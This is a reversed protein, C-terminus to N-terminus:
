PHRYHLPSLKSDCPIKDLSYIGEVFVPLLLNLGSCSMTLIIISLMMWEMLACLYGFEVHYYSFKWLAVYYWLWDLTCCLNDSM